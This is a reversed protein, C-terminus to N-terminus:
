SVDVGPDDRVPALLELNKYITDTIKDYQKLVDIVLM